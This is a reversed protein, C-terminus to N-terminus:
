RREGGIAELSDTKAALGSASCFFSWFEEPASVDRTSAGTGEIGRGRQMPWGHGHGQLKYFVVPAQGAWRQGYVRCGDQPDRDPLEWQKPHDRCGNMKCWFNVTEEASMQDQNGSWPKMPDETGLMIIMPVPRSPKPWNNEAARPLTAVLVGAGAIRDALNCVLNMTMVGGNSGGAVYIRQPDAIKEKILEDFMTRFFGVDDADSTRRQFSYMDHSGINWGNVGSPYVTVYGEKAGLITFDTKLHMAIGSSSAGGHLVFIVPSPIGAISSPINMFFEREVAGVQIKRQVLGAPVPGNETRQRLRRIAERQGATPTKRSDSLAGSRETLNFGRRNPRESLEQASIPHVLSYDAGFLLFAVSFAIISQQFKM